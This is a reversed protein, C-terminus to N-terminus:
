DKQVPPTELQAVQDAAFQRVANARETLARVLGDPRGYRQSARVRTLASKTLYKTVYRAPGSDGPEVLRWHSYGVLWAGELQRKTVRGEAEHVLVHFHPFGDEHAESVLLYRLAAGSNKRIRKLWKTVDTGAVNVVAAFQEAESLANWAEARRRRIVRMALYLYRTRHEPSITLTGFWSRGSVALEDRARAAWLRARHKLCTECKRCRVTYDAFIKTSKEVELGVMVRDPAGHAEVAIPSLCDGAPNFGQLQTARRERVAIRSTRIIPM